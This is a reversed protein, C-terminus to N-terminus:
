GCREVSVVEGTEYDVVYTVVHHADSIRVDSDSVWPVCYYEWNMHIVWVKRNDKDRCRLIVRPLFLTKQAWQDRYLVETFFKNLGLVSEKAEKARGIAGAIDQAYDHLYDYRETDRKPVFQEIETLVPFARDGRDGRARYGLQLREETVAFLNPSGHRGAPDITTCGSLVFLVAILYKTMNRILVVDAKVKKWVASPRAPFLTRPKTPHRRM